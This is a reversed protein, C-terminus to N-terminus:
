VRWVRISAMGPAGSDRGRTRPRCVCVCTRSWLRPMIPLQRPSSSAQRNALPSSIVELM